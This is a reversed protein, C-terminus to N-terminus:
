AELKSGCKECFKYGMKNPAGCSSCFISNEPVPAPAPAPVSGLIAKEKDQLGKIQEKAEEISALKQQIANVEEEVLEFKLDETGWSKVIKDGIVTKIKEIEQEQTTIFTKQKTEEMFNSTKVNITTLGKSFSEKIGAM